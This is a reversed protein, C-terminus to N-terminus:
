LFTYSFGVGLTQKIQRRGRNVPPDKIFQANFNVNMYKSVKAAVTNDSRVVIQDLNKFPGFLELKGTFLLNTQMQWNVETVSELGGEVKTKEIAATAPDDAYKFEAFESTIVERLAAGLRTKIQPLPQYGFGASQTIYAPDFFKSVTITTDRGGATKTNYLFGKAFQTKLTAGVYPNVYTGLKYTLTTEFDIKDDTKRLGQAGLRTQGFAFKYSTTWNTKALDDVSKGILSLAYALANEGGQAWDDYSVQTLNLGSVLSHTWPKKVKASDAQQANASVALLYFFLVLLKRM